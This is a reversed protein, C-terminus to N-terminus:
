TSCKVLRLSVDSYRSDLYKRSPTTRGSWPRKWNRELGSRPRELTGTRSGPRSLPRNGSRSGPRSFTRNNGKNWENVKEISSWRGTDSSDLDFRSNVKIMPKRRRSTPSLDPSPARSAPLSPLDIESCLSELDFESETFPTSPVSSELNSLISENETDKDTRISKLKNRPRTATKNDPYSDNKSCFSMKATFKRNNIYFEMNYVPASRTPRLPIKFTKVPSTPSTAVKTVDVDVVSAKRTLLNRRKVTTIVTTDSMWPVRKTSEVMVDVVKVGM